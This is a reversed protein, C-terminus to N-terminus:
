DNTEISCIFLEVIGFLRLQMNVECKKINMGISQRTIHAEEPKRIIEDLVIVTLFRSSFDNSSHEVSENPDHYRWITVFLTHM